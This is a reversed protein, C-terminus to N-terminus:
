WRVYLGIGQDYGLYNGDIDLLLNHAKQLAGLEFDVHHGNRQATARNTCGRM